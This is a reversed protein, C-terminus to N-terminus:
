DPSPRTAPRGSRAAARRWGPRSEVSRIDGLTAATGDRPVQPEERLRELTPVLRLLVELV